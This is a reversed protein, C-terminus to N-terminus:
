MTLHGLVIIDGRIGHGLYVMSLTYCFRSMVYLVVNVYDSTKDIEYRMM